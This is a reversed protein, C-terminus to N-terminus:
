KKVIEECDPIPNYTAKKEGHIIHRITGQKYFLGV